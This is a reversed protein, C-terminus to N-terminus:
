EVEYVINDTYYISISMDIIKEKDPLSIYGSYNVSNYGYMEDIVEFSFKQYTNIFESIEIKKGCFDGYQGLESLFHIYSFDFDVKGIKINGKVQKFPEKKEIYGNEFYFRIDSDIIEMKYVRMDHLSYPVDDQYKYIVEM